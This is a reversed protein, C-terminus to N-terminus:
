LKFVGATFDAVVAKELVKGVLKKFEDHVPEENVYYDRDEATEFEMVFAHTLGNKAGEPSNDTGGSASKIYPKKSMPHIRNNKLGLMRQSIDNIDESSASAKFQFLVIHTVGM